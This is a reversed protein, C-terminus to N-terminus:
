VPFERPNIDYHSASYVCKGNQIILIQPSEHKVDWQHAIANSVERYSLLDLYYLDFKTLDEETIGVLWGDIREKAAHNVPCTTSHKYIIQPRTSSLDQIDSIQELQHLNKYHEM